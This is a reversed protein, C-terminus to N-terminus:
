EAMIDTTTDDVVGKRESFQDDTHGIVRPTPHTAAKSITPAKNTQGLAEARITQAINGILHAIGLTM